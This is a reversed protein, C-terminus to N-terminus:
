EYRLSEVPNRTAARWSQWSVTILAVVISIIGALIFVWWTIETKYAFNQLWTNMTYWAIPTSVILAIVIWKIFDLNLLTLIETIRAGNVKRIGIEKIRKQSAYVALTFIGISSIFMAFLSFWFVIKSTKLERTYAENIKSNLFTYDFPFNPSFKKYLTKTQALVNKTKSTNLRILAYDVWGNTNVKTFITPRPKEYLSRYHMDPLIENVVIKQKTNNEDIEIVQGPYTVELISAASENIRCYRVAPLVNNKLQIDMVKFYDEDVDLVDFHLAKGKYEFMWDLIGEGPMFNCLSVEEIGSIKKLEDKFAL